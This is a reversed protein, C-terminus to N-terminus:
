KVPPSDIEGRDHIIKRLVCKVHGSEIMKKFAPCEFNTDSYIFLRHLKDPTYVVFLFERLLDDQETNQTIPIDPGPVSIGHPRLLPSHGM